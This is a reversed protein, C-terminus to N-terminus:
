TQTEQTDTFYDTSIVCNLGCVQQIEEITRRDRKVTNVAQLNSDLAKIDLPKYATSAPTKRRIPAKHVQKMGAFFEVDQPEHGRKYVVVHRDIDDGLSSSILVDSFDNTADHRHCTLALVFRNLSM